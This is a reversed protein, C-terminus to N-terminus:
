LKGGLVKEIETIVRVLRMEIQQTTDNLAAKQKAKWAEAAAIALAAVSVSVLAIVVEAM